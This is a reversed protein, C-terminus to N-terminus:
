GVKGFGVPGLFINQGFNLASPSGHVPIACPPLHQQISAYHRCKIPSINTNMLYAFVTKSITQVQCKFPTYGLYTNLFFTKQNMDCQLIRSSDQETVNRHSLFIVNIFVNVFSGTALALFPLM